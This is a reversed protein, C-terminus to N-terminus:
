ITRQVQNTQIMFAPFNFNSDVFEVGVLAERSPRQTGEFRFSDQLLQIGQQQGMKDDTEGDVLSSLHSMQVGVGQTEDVGHTEDAISNGIELQRDRIVVRGEPQTEEIIEQM